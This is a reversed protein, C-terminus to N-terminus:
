KRTAFFRDLDLVFGPLASSPVRQPRVFAAESGAVLDHAAVREDKPYILWAERVGKAAYFDLKKLDHRRKDAYAPEIRFLVHEGDATFETRTGRPHRFVKDNTTSRVTLEADGRRPSITVAIWKGDRRIVRDTIRQWCDYDDHTLARKGGDQAMPAPAVGLGIAVLLLAALVAPLTPAEQHM